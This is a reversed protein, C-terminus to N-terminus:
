LKTLEVRSIRRMLWPAYRRIALLVHAEPTVPRLPENRLAARVIQQAVREPTYNRRGYDRAARDRLQAQGVDDVGVYTTARTINTNIFGPCIATVGIGRPALEGRLCESLMLVAAKTTAYAPFTRSSTYAAASAINVLQGVRGADIMQQAFLRSGEIVGGLNIDLIRQWDAASTSMFPGAIGIGANNVVIAATGHEALVRAAFAAFSARDAVDLPYASATVGLARAQTATADAAQLDIDGVVVNAGHKAFDLATARGIGGGGGTVVVLQGVLPRKADRPGQVRAAALDPSAAAGEVHDILQSIARAIPAPQSRPMWHGGVLQRVYLAPTLGHPAEAQLAHGVYADGNPALVQVPVTTPQPRKGKALMNARYLNLGRLKDELTGTPGHKGVLRDALGSHWVWEGLGPTVFAAIYSS